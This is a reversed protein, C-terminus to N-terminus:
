PERPKPAPLIVANSPGFRQMAIDQLSVRSFHGYVQVVVGCFSRFLGPMHLDCKSQVLLLLIATLVGFENHPVLVRPINLYINNKEHHVLHNIMFHLM